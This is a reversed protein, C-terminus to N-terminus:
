EDGDIQRIRDLFLDDIKTRESQGTDGPDLGFLDMQRQSKDSFDLLVPEVVNSGAERLNLPLREGESQFADSGERESFRGPDDPNADFLVLGQDLQSVFDFMLQILDSYRAFSSFEMGMNGQSSDFAVLYFSDAVINGM